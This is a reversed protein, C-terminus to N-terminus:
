RTRETTFTEFEDAEVAVPAPPVTGATRGAPGAEAPNTATPESTRPPIQPRDVGTGGQPARSGDSSQADRGARAIRGVVLGAVAAAGLFSGPRRRAFRRTEDLLGSLGLDDIRQAADDVRSRAEELYDALAGADQTRGEQLAQLKDSFGHLAEAVRGMQQEGQDRLQEQVDSVFNRAQDKAADAVHDVERRATDAVSSAEHKAHDAVQRGQAKAEDTRSREETGIDANM